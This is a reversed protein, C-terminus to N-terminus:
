EENFVVNQVYYDSPIGLQECATPDDFNIQFNKPLHNLADLLIKDGDSMLDGASSIISRTQEVTRSGKPQYIVIHGYEPSEHTPIYEYAVLRGKGWHDALFHPAEQDVLQRAYTAIETALQSDETDIDVDQVM